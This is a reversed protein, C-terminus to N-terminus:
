SGHLHEAIALGVSKLFSVFLCVSVCLSRIGVLTHNFSRGQWCHWICGTLAEPRAVSKCTPAWHARQRMRAVTMWGACPPNAEFEGSRGCTLALFDTQREEHMAEGECQAGCWAPPACSAAKWNRSHWPVQQTPSASKSAARQSVEM